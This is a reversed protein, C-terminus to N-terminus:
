EPSPGASLTCTQGLGSLSPCKYLKCGDWPCHCTRHQQTEHRGSKYDEARREPQVLGQHTKM